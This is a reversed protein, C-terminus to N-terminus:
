KLADKITKALDGIKAEIIGKVEDKFTGLDKSLDTKQNENGAEILSDIKAELEGLKDENEEEIPEEEDEPIEDSTLPMEPSEPAEQASMMEESLRTALALSAAAEDPSLEEPNVEQPNITDNM